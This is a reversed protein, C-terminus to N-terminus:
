EHDTIEAELVPAITTFDNGSREQLICSDWTSHLNNSCPGGNENIDNGGRDDQYSVHLPQHINGVWHGLLKLALLRDADSNNTDELIAADSEIATFLCTNAMPCDDTAIALTNRPVNIFHDPPRKRPLADAFTCSDAFTTFGTDLNILREVETSATTTLEDFAIQCITRHATGGWAQALSPLLFILLIIRRMPTGRLTTLYTLQLGDDLPQQPAM